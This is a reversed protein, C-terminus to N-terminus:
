NWKYGTACLNCATTAATAGTHGATDMYGTACYQCIATAGAATAVGTTLDSYGVACYKCNGTLKTAASAIGNANDSYGADCTATKTCTFYTAATAGTAISTQFYGNACNLCAAVAHGTTANTNVGSAPAVDSYGADCVDTGAATGICKAFLTSSWGYSPACYKCDAVAAGTTAVTNTGPSGTPIVDSYGTSCVAAAGPCAVAPVATPKYIGSGCAAVTYTAAPYVTAVASSILLCSILISSLQKNM